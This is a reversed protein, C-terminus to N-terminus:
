GLWNLYNRYNFYLEQNSLVADIYKCMETIQNRQYYQSIVSFYDALTEPNTNLGAVPASINENGNLYAEGHTIRIRKKEIEYINSGTNSTSILNNSGYIHLSIVQKDSLNGMAHILSGNVPVITGPAILSTDGLTITKDELTYLRHSIEGPFYVAGWDTLGHNHIATYDGPAWSMLYIVFNSGEYIKTRGYSLSTDHDFNSFQFLDNEKLDFDRILQILTESTMRNTNLIETILSQFNRPIRIATEM